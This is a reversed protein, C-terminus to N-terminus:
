KGGVREVFVLYHARLRFAEVGFGRSIEYKSSNGAISFESVPARDKKNKSVPNESFPKLDHKVPRQSAFVFTCVFRSTSVRLLQVAERSM